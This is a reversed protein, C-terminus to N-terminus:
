HGRVFLGEAMDGFCRDDGLEDEFDQIQQQCYREYDSLTEALQKEMRQCVFTGSHHLGSSDSVYGLKEYFRVAVDRSEVVVTKFGLEAIWKEASEVVLRGLGRGRYDELVVVRGIEAVSSSRKLIRCTAVPFGDDTVVIYKTAPTDHEDFEERLGIHYKRAMAQIRVYYAGAQQYTETARIVKLDAM